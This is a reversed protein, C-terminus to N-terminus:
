HCNPNRTSNQACASREAHKSLPPNGAGRNRVEQAVRLGADIARRTEYAGASLSVGSGVTSAQLLFKVGDVYELVHELEHAILELTNDAPRVYAHAAPLGADTRGIRTKARWTQRSTVPEIVM